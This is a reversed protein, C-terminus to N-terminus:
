NGSIDEKLGLSDVVSEYIKDLAKMDRQYYALSSDFVMQNTGHTKLLSDEMKKYVYKSSDSYSYNSNVFAEALHLDKMIQVMQEKSLINEPTKEEKCSAFFLAFLVLLPSAFSFRSLMTHTKLKLFVHMTWCKRNEHESLAIPHIDPFFKQPFM